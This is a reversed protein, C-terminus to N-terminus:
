PRRQQLLAFYGNLKGNHGVAAYGPHLQHSGRAVDRQIAPGPAADGGGVGEFRQRLLEVAGVQRQTKIEVVVGVLVIQQLLCREPAGGAFDAELPGAWRQAEIEMVNGTFPVAPKIARWFVPRGVFQWQGARFDAPLHLSRKGNSTDSYIYLM